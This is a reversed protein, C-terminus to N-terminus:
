QIIRRVLGETQERHEDFKCRCKEFKIDYDSALFEGKETFRKAVLAIRRTASDGASDKYVLELNAAEFCGHNV